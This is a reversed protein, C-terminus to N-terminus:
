FQSHAIDAFDDYNASGFELQSPTPKKVKAKKPKEGYTGDESDGAIREEGSSESETEDRDRIARLALLQQIGMEFLAMKPKNRPQNVESAVAIVPNKDRDNGRDHVGTEEIRLLITTLYDCLFVVECQVDKSYQEIQPIIRKVTVNDPTEDEWYGPKWADKKLTGASKEEMIFLAVKPLTANTTKKVHANWATKLKKTFEGPPCWNMDKKDAGAPALAVVHDLRSAGKVGNVTHYHQYFIQVKYDLEALQRRFEKKSDESMVRSTIVKEAELVDNLHKVVPVLLHAHCNVAVSTENYLTIDRVKSKDELHFKASAKSAQAIIAKRNKITTACSSVKKGAHTVKTDDRTRPLLAVPLSPGSI